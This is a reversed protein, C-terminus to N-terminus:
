TCAPLGAITGPGEAHIFLLLTSVHATECSAGQPLQRGEVVSM